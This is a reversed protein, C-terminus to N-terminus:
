QEQESPNVIKDELLIAKAQTILAGGEVQIIDLIKRYREVSFSYKHIGVDYYQLLINNMMDMPTMNDTQPFFDKEMNALVEPQDPHAPNDPYEPHNFIYNRAAIVERDPDGVDEYSRKFLKDRKEYYNAKSFTKNVRNLANRDGRLRWKDIDGKFGANTLMRTMDSIRPQYFSSPFVDNYLKKVEELSIGLYDALTDEEFNSNLGEEVILGEDSIQECEYKGNGLPTLRFKSTNAGMRRTVITEGDKEQASYSNEESAYAHGLEHILHPVNIGTQFKDLFKQKIPDLNGNKNFGDVYIYKKVGVIKLNEDFVPETVYGGAGSISQKGYEGMDFDEKDIIHPNVIGKMKLSLEEQTIPVEPDLVVIPTTRLVRYFLERDEFSKKGVVARTIGSLVMKMDDDYDYIKAVENVVAEIEQNVDYKFNDM